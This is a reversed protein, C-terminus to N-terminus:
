VGGQLLGVRRLEDFEQGPTGKCFGNGTETQRYLKDTHYVPGENGAVLEEPPQGDKRGVQDM